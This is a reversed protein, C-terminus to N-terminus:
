AVLGTLEAYTINGGTLTTVALRVGHCPVILGNPITFSGNFVGPATGNIVTFAAGTASNPTTATVWTQAQAISTEFAELIQVGVTVATVGAGAVVLYSVGTILYPFAAIIACYQGVATIPQPNGAYNLVGTSGGRSSNNNFLNSTIM